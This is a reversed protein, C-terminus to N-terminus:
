LNISDKLKIDNSSSGILINFVGKKIEWQHNKIDWTSFSKSDLCIEIKKIEGSNIYTKDFGQLKKIPEDEDCNMFSIYCQSIEFGSVDGVNKIDFSCTFDNRHSNSIRLNSYEFNTYSLGHGFHFLPEIKKRDYWKYGILLKEDYSMQLNEGPYCSYAPTDEIRKPFTTPLKGSPNVLGTLIEFLANGYEQGAYWSQLISKAKNVWPMDVPSGTNLVIIANPNIELVKEILTNQEGPLNFDVRDNGETEWDSNTGVLLIVEDVEKAINLAEDLLDIKDPPQCGIYIAPFNGEFKYQIEIQYSKDKELHSAGRKSSSGHAFFADGPLPDTWNDIIEENNILLKSKGIAFIEFAHEGSIDPVYTCSFKVYIDPRDETGIIDKAFGEFIWFKSGRLVKSSIFDNKNDTVNFYEVLFGNEKTLSKNIEPLYRYTHCGKASKVITKESFNNQFSSVPHSEHYPVLTASGGGIIQAKEANPGIIGISKIDKKLPLTGDNKLLVMGEQAADKLLKRKLKSDNDREPKRIPNEFRKCFSAVNLIRKVKDNILDEPVAKDNIATILNEGWSKAPGPMELDLGGIANEVTDRAAGWDSVVYGDFGWEDKLIEILLNDHSSCYINNLKNYASMVVKANAEKIAMEFPLLYIERLTREDINSSVTYREFETDNGVFHKLCAAINKSQVGKVYEIAIKGTLFPDESFCEFHRGGLPHRHINITPGLLVDVDKLKAESALEEGLTNILNLNWSSGISIACPFCASSKGSNGDGRVGNPGDSMKISPIGLRDIKNTHWADFGSLLEVKEELTLDKILQKIDPM